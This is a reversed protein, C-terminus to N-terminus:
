IMLCSEIAANKQVNQIMLNDIMKVLDSWEAENILSVLSSYTGIFTYM